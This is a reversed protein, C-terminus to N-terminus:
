EDEDQRHKLEDASEQSETLPDTATHTPVHMVPLPLVAEAFRTCHYRENTRPAASRYEPCGMAAEPFDLIGQHPHIPVAPKQIGKADVSDRGTKNISRPAGIGASAKEYATSEARIRVHRIHAGGPGETVRGIAPAHARETFKNHPAV